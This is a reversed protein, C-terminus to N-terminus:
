RIQVTDIVNWVRGDHQLLSLHDVQFTHAYEKKEYEKWAELFSAYALDRYAITIHPHFDMEQATIEIRPFSTRFSSILEAQMSSLQSGLVPTVFVVPYRKKRFVGFGNLEIQFSGAPFSLAKFWRRLDEQQEARLKFPAKLTIHPIVRLAAKSRFRDAFDLRFSTIIESIDQPPIIAIFYISEKQM